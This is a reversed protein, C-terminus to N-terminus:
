APAGLAVFTVPREGAVLYVEVPRGVLGAPLPGVRNEDQGWTRATAREYSVPETLAAEPASPPPSELILAGAIVQDGEVRARILWQSTWAWLHSYPPAADPARGVHFGDYDAWATEADGLMSRFAAWEMRGYGLLEATLLAGPQTTAPASM